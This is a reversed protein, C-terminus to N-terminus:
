CYSPRDTSSLQNTTVSLDGLTFVAKYLKADESPGKVCFQGISNTTGTNYGEWGLLGSNWLVQVHVGSAPTSVYEGLTTGDFTNLWVTGFIADGGIARGNYHADYTLYPTNLTTTSQPATYAVDNYIFTVSFIDNIYVTVPVATAIVPPLTNPSIESPNLYLTVKAGYADTYVLDYDLDNSNIRQLTGSYPASKGPIVMLKELADQYGPLSRLSGSPAVGPTTGRAAALADEYGPLGLLSGTVSSAAGGVIAILMLSFIITVLTKRKM